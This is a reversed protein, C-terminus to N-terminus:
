ILDLNWLIFELLTKNNKSSNCSKCLPIINVLTHEGGRILPVVHDVTLKTEKRCYACKYDVAECLALWDEITFNNVEATELAFKRKAKKRLDAIRVKDPNTQKWLKVRLKNYEHQNFYSTQSWKKYKEPNNIKDEKKTKLIHDRNRLYRLADKEKQCTICASNLGDVRSADKHFAETHKTQKCRICRKEM